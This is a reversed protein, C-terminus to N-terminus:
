FNYKEDEFKQVASKLSKALIAGKGTVKLTDLDALLLGNEILEDKFEKKFIASFDVNESIALLFIVAGVSLKNKKAIPTLFECFDAYENIATFFLGKELKIEGRAIIKSSFNLM